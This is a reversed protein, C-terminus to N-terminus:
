FNVKIARAWHPIDCWIAAAIKACERWLDVKNQRLLDLATYRNIFYEGILKTAKVYNKPRDPFFRRATQVPHFQIDYYLTRIKESPIEDIFM